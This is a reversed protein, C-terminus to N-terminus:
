SSARQQCYSPPSLSSSSSQPSFSIIKKLISEFLHSAMLKMRLMRMCETNFANMVIRAPIWKFQGFFIIFASNKTEYRVLFFENRQVRKRRQDPWKASSEMLIEDSIIPSNIMCGIKIWHSVVLFRFFAIIRFNERTKWQNKDCNRISIASQASFLFFFM